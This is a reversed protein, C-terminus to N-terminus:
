KSRYLFCDQNSVGVGVAMDEVALHIVGAGFNGMAFANIKIVFAAFLIEIAGAPRQYYIDAVATLFNYLGYCGLSL